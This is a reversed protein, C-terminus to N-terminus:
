EYKHLKNESLCYFTYNNIKSNNTSIILLIPNTIMVTPSNVTEIMAKLDMSSYMTSANPHSHWEGIYFRQNKNFEKKFEESLDNASRQFMTPSNKYKNPLIIDEIEVLSHNNSYKGILFGGIENPFHQIAIEGIKNILAEEIKIKLNNYTNILIM